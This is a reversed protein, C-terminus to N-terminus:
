HLPIKGDFYSIHRGSYKIKVTPKLPKTSGNGLLQSSLILRQGTAAAQQGNSAKHEGVTWWKVEKGGKGEGEREKRGM